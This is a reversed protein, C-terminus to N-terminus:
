RNGSVICKKGTSEDTDLVPIRSRCSGAEGPSMVYMGTHGLPVTRRYRVAACLPKKGITM